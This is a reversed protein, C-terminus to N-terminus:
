MHIPDGGSLAEDSSRLMDLTTNIVEPAFTGQM